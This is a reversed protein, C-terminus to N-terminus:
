GEGAPRQIVSFGAKRLAIVREEDSMEKGGSGTEGEGGGGGLLAGTQARLGLSQLACALKWERRRRKLYVELWRKLRVWPM